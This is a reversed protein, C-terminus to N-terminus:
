KTEIYSTHVLATQPVYSNCVAESLLKAGVVAGDVYEFTVVCSADASLRTMQGQWQACGGGDEQASCSLNTCDGTSEATGSAAIPDVDVTVV